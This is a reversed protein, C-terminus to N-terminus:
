EGEGTIAKSSKVKKVHVISRVLLDVNPIGALHNFIVVYGM